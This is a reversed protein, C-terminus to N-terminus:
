RRSLAFTSCLHTPSLLPSGPIVDWNHLQQPPQPGDEKPDNEICQCFWTYMDRSIRTDMFASAASTTPHIGLGRLFISRDRGKFPQSAPDSPLPRSPAYGLFTTTFDLLDNQLHQPGQPDTYLHDRYCPPVADAVVLHQLPVTPSFSSIASPPALNPAIPPSLTVNTGTSASPVDVVVDPYLEGDDDDGDYPVVKNVTLDDSCVWINLKPFYRRQADTCEGLTDDREARSVTLKELKRPDNPHPDYVYVVASTTPPQRARNLAQQEDKATWDPSRQKDAARAKLQRIIKLIEQHQAAQNSPDLPSSSYVPEPAPPPAHQAIAHQPITPPASPTSFFTTQLNQLLHPPPALSALNNQSAYRTVAENWPYWVPINHELLWQMSPQGRDDNHMLNVVLGARPINSKPKAIISSGLQRVFHRLHQHQHLYREWDDQEYELKNLPQGPEHTSPRPLRRPPSSDSPSRANAILYSLVGLWVLFWDRSYRIIQQAKAESHYQQYYGMGQPTFPLLAAAQSFSRLNMSVDYIINNLYDWSQIVHDPLSWLGEKLVLQPLHVLHHILPINLVLQTLPTFCVYGFTYSWRRPQHLSEWTIGNSFPNVGKGM